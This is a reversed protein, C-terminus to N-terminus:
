AFRGQQLLTAANQRTMNDATDHALAMLLPLLEPCITLALARAAPPPLVVSQHVARWRANQDNRPADRLCVELQAEDGRDAHNCRRARITAHTHHTGTPPGVYEVRLQQTAHEFAVITQNSM